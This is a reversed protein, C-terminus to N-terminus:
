HVSSNPTVRELRIVHWQTTAYKFVSLIDTHTYYQPFLEALNELLESTFAESNSSFRSYSNRIASHPDHVCKQLNEWCFGRFEQKIKGIYFIECLIHRKGSESM